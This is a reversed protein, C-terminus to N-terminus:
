CAVDLAASPGWRTAALAIRCVGVGAIGLLVVSVLPGIASLIDILNQGVWIDYPRHNWRNFDRADELAFKFASILEYGYQRSLLAHAPFFAAPVVLLHLPNHQWRTDGRVWARAMLALFTLGTILPLPDFLVCWYLALGLLVLWVFHHDSLYRVLMWL